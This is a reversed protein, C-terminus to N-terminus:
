SRKRLLKGDESLLYYLLRGAPDDRAGLISRAAAREEICSQSELAKASSLMSSSLGKYGGQYAKSTQLAESLKSLEDPDDLDDYGPLQALKLTSAMDNLTLEKVSNGMQITLTATDGNVTLREDDAWKTKDLLSIGNYKTYKILDGVTKQAEDYALKDAAADTDPLNKRAAIDNMSQLAASIGDMTSHLTDAIDKGQMANKNAQRLLAAESRQVGTLALAAIEKGSKQRPKFLGEALTAGDKGELLQGILERQLAFITALSNDAFNTM